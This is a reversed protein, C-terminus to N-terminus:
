TGVLDVLPNLLGQIPQRPLDLLVFWCLVRLVQGQNLLLLELFIAMQSEYLPDFMVILHNIEVIRESDVTQPFQVSLVGHSEFPDLVTM